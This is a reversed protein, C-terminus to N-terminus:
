RAGFRARCGGNVWLSSGSYGWNRGEVCQTRSLQQVLVPRGQRREWACTRMRNNDSSCEISYGNGGGSWNGSGGGRSEGFEARCGNSVWVAGNSSGWSRGEICQSKSLQRVLVARRWNSHCVRQRNDNSECRLTEGSGSWGGSSGSGRGEAFEARCGNDVWLTGNGSGWNRGEVCQTKSLQRVLTAGRWGTNCVRRRNDNSECRLTRATNNGNNWGGRGPGFEARCGNGVWVTGNRSGWNQGEVCPTKSLQRVITADRWGTNCVQQRNNVSECRVAAVTGHAPQAATSTALLAGPLLASLVALLLPRNM